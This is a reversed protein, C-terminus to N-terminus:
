ISPLLSQEGQQRPVAIPVQIVKTYGGGAHSYQFALSSALGTARASGESPAQPGGHDDRHLLPLEDLAQNAKSAMVGFYIALAIATVGIAGGLSILLIWYWAMPEEEQKPAASTTGPRPTTGPLVRNLFSAMASYVTDTPTVPYEDWLTFNTSVNLDDGLTGIIEFVVTTGGGTTAATTSSVRGLGCALLWLVLCLPLSLASSHM